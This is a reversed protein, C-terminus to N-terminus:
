YVLAPASRAGHAAFVNRAVTDLEATTVDPRVHRELADLTLRVIRGAERLGAWDAPSEISMQHHYRRLTCSWMSHRDRRDTASRSATRRCRWRMQIRRTSRM